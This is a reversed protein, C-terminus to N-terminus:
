GSRASVLLDERPPLTRVACLAGFMLIGAAILFAVTFGSTPASAHVAGAERAAETRATAATALIALV